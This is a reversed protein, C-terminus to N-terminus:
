ATLGGFPPTPCAAVGKSRCAHVLCLRPFSGAPRTWPALAPRAPPCARARARAPAATACSPNSASAAARPVPRAGLCPASVPAAAPPSAPVLCALSTVCPPARGSRPAIPAHTFNDYLLSIEREATTGIRLLLGMGPTAPANRSAGKSRQTLPRHVHSTTNPTARGREHKDNRHESNNAPLGHEGQGPALEQATSSHDATAVPASPPAVPEEILAGARVLPRAASMHAAPPPAGPHAHATEDISTGGRGAHAFPTCVAIVATLVVARRAFALVQM